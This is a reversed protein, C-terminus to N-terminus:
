KSRLAGPHLPSVRTACGSCGIVVKGRTDNRGSREAPARLPSIRTACGGGVVNARRALIEGSRPAECWKPRFSLRCVSARPRARNEGGFPDNAYVARVITYYVDRVPSRAPAGQSTLWVPQVGEALPNEEASSCVQFCTRPAPLTDVIRSQAWTRNSPRPV